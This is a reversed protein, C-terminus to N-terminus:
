QIMIDSLIELIQAMLNILFKNWQVWMYILVSNFSNNLLFKYVERNGIIKSM